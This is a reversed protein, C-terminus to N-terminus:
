LFNVKLFILKTMFTMFTSGTRFNFNLIQDNWLDHPPNQFQPIKITSVYFYVRVKFDEVFM